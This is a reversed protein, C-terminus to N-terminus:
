GEALRITRRIMTALDAVDRDETRAALREAERALADLFTPGVGLGSGMRAQLSEAFASATYAIRFRDPATEYAGELDGVTVTGAAESPVRTQPDLWRVRAEAVERSPDHAADERLRVTYFATVSHGPGVEGG